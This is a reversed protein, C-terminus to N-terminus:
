SRYLDDLWPGGPLSDEDRVFDLLPNVGDDEMTYFLGVGADPEYEVLYEEELDYVTLALFGDDDEGSVTIWPEETREVHKYPCVEIEPYAYRLESEQIKDLARGSSITSLYSGVADHLSEIQELPM